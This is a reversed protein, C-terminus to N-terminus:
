IIGLPKWTFYKEMKEFSKEIPEDRKILNEPIDAIKRKVYWWGKANPYAERFELPVEKMFALASKDWGNWKPEVYLLDPESFGACLVIYPERGKFWWGSFLLIIFVTVWFVEIKRM